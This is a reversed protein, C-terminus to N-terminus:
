RAENRNSGSKICWKTLSNGPSKVTSPFTKTDSKMDTDNHGAHLRCKSHEMFVMGWNSLDFYHKTCFSNLPKQHKKCVGPGCRMHSLRNGSHCFTTPRLDFLYSPKKVGPSGHFWPVQDWGRMGCFPMLLFKKKALHEHHLSDKFPM